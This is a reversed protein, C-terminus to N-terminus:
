RVLMGVVRAAGIVAVWSLCAGTLIIAARAAVPYRREPEVTASEFAKTLASQLAAVENVGPASGAEALTLKADAAEVSAAKQMGVMPQHKRLAAM